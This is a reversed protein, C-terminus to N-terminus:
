LDRTEGGSSRRTCTLVQQVLGFDYRKFTWYAAETDAHESTLDYFPQRARILESRILVSTATGTVYPSESCAQRLIERRPRGNALLPARRPRRHRRGAPLCQRARGASQRGRSRGDAELCEPYLWDDSAVVKCYVSGPGLTGFARNYSPIVDVYEAHREYRIRGDVAAYREAIERTRDTSSDDVIVYEWDRFTQGLM